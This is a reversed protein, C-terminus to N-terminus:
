PIRLGAKLVLLNGSAAVALDAVGDGNVDGATIGSGYAIPALVRPAAFQRRVAGPVLMIAGDTVYAFGSARPPNPALFTFAQPSDSSSNLLAANSSSFRGEGDNWLVLLKRTASGPTGTLLAIDLRGDTDADALMLQARGCPEDLQVTTRMTITTTGPAAGILVLACHEQDGRPMAWLVEDHDDGDVDGTAGVWSVIADNGAPSAPLLAPDLNWDLRQPRSEPRDLAPVLWVQWDRASVDNITSVALLDDHRPATL